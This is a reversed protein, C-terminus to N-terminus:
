DHEADVVVARGHFPQVPRNNPEHLTDKLVDIQHKSFQKVGALVNWHVRESCPPTTLSGEYRYARRDDPLLSLANFPAKTASEEGQVTPFVEFLANFAADEEGQYIMVGVVALTRDSAQHVLHIEAHALEGKIAHESPAHYHFQKLEYRDGDLLLFSGPAYNAQVTHGNNVLQLPSSHYDFVLDTLGVSLEGVLDIPSQKQGDACAVFEDSLSGWHAPGSEGGYTWHLASHGGSGSSGTAASGGGEGVKKEIVELRDELSNLMDVPDEAPSCGALAGGVFIGSLLYRAIRFRYKGMFRTDLYVMSFEVDEPM